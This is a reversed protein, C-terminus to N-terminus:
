NAESSKIEGRSGAATEIRSLTRKAMRTIMVVLLITALLGAYGLIKELLLGEGPGQTLARRGAAGLYVYLFTGPLMGILNALMYTGLGIRTMGLLYNLLTFPFVPSLRSLLAVKFAQDGIARDLAAFRPNREAWATVKQRLFTRALVFSCLAGLNAGIIVTILGVRLGFITGAGITLLSGPILLVTLGIYALAFVAPGITGLGDIGTQLRGFWYDLPLFRSGVGIAVVALLILPLHNNKAKAVIL